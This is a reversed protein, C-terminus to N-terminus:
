EKNRRIIAAAREADNTYIPTVAVRLTAGEAALRRVLRRGLFGTGGFVIATTM